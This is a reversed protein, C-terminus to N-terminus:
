SFVFRKSLFYNFGLGALSAAINPYIPQNYLTHSVSILVFFTGGNVAFGILNTLLFKAWQVHPADHLHHRFTWVRNTAWNATAAVVFGCTKALYLGIYAKLTYVVGTDWCFGLTGVTAFRIFKESIGSRSLLAVATDVVGLLRKAIVKAM